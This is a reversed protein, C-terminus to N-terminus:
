RIQFDFVEGTIPIVSDVQISQEVIALWSQHRIPFREIRVIPLV